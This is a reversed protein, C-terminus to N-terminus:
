KRQKRRSLSPSLTRRLAQRARSLRMMVAGDSLSLMKGIEAATFGGIIQLLLPERYNSPLSRLLQDWESISMSEAGGYQGGGEAHTQLVAEWQADDIEVIVSKRARLRTHENRLITFLWSKVAAENQLQNWAKWARAFTEQVLDEALTRDRCLWYSFRYLDAAYARVMSEFSSTKGAFLM